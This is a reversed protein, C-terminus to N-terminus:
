RVATVYGRDKFIQNYNIELLKKCDTKFRCVVCNTSKHNFLTTKELCNLQGRDENLFRQREIEESRSYVEKVQVRERKNSITSQEILYDFDIDRNEWYEIAKKGVFDYIQIRGPAKSSSFRVIVQDKVRLIHFNFYRTLFKEGLTVLHYKKDLVSLFNQITKSAKETPVFKYKENGYKKRYFDEYYRIVDEELIM